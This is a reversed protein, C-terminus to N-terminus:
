SGKCAVHDYLRKIARSNSAFARHIQSRGGNEFREISTPKCKNAAGFRVVTEWWNGDHRVQDPMWLRLREM